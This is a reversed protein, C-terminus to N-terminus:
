RAIIEFLTKAKNIVVLTNFIGDYDNIGNVIKPANFWKLPVVCEVNHVLVGDDAVYYM